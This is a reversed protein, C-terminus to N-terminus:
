WGGHDHGEDVPDPEHGNEGAVYDAVSTYGTHDASEIVDHETLQGDDWTHDTDSMLLGGEDVEGLGDLHPEHLGLAEGLAQAGYPDHGDHGNHRDYAEYLDHPDHVEHPGHAEHPGHPDHAEHHETRHHPEDYSQHQEMPRVGPAPHAATSREPLLLTLGAGAVLTARALRPGAGGGPRGTGPRPAATGLRAPSGPPLASIWADAAFRKEPIEVRVRRFDAAPVGGAGTAFVDTYLDAPVILAMDSNRSASLKRRLSASDLLRCALEVSWAVYGLPAAQVSGQAMAARLRVVEDAVGRANLTFLADRLGLLLGPVVREEDIGPPLLLLQGDGRDQLACSSRRVGARECAHDLGQALRSQARQQAAYPRGGYAEIDVVLCLRRQRPGQGGTV